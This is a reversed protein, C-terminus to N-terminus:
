STLSIINDKSSLTNETSTDPYTDLNALKVYKELKNIATKKSDEHTHSYRKLMQIDKHGSLAMVTAFDEKENVILNSIFTHRLDHFRCHPINSDKLASNWARKWSSSSKYNDGIPTTFVYENDNNKKIEKLTEALYPSIPIVRDEYNKTDTVSIFGKELNVDKWKLNRIEGRRMGTLYATLLIPKFYESASNYLKSFESESLVRFQRTQVKLLKMGAIPNERILKWEVALNFMRRLVGLEKNITEPQKNLSKRHSKYKEVLWLSVNEAKNGKFFSLLHKCAVHDREPSKHNENAWELYSSVLKEFSIGKNTSALEVGQAIQAKRISEVNLADQRTVKSPDKDKVHVVQRKKQGNVYLDTYWRNGKKYIAM